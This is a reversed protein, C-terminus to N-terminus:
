SELCPYANFWTNAHGTFTDIDHHLKNREEETFSLAGLSQLRCFGTQENQTVLAQYLPAELQHTVANLRVQGRPSDWSTDELLTAAERGNVQAALVRAIVSAAEWALLSFVNAKGPQTWQGTFAKNEPLDLDRAWPVVTSFDGGPWPLKDLWQEEGMFSSGFVPYDRFLGRTAGERFFDETMDGCFSALIGDTNQQQMHGSLAELSFEDRKLATIHNFVINGGNEELGKSFAFGSRYGADYFSCTFAFKEGANRALRAAARCCLSSQLSLYFAHSLAATSAPFHAGSDFVLLLRNSAPFLPHIFEASQPNIYAIIIDAGDMLLQECRAYIEENKAGVGINLSSLQLEPSGAHRLGARLGDMIDFSM